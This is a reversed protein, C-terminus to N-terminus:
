PGWGVMAMNKGPFVYNAPRKATQKWRQFRFEDELVGNKVEMITPPLTRGLLYPIQTPLILGIDVLGNDHDDDDDDDDDM